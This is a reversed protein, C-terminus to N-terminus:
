DNTKSLPRHLPFSMFVIFCKVKIETCDAVARVNELVKFRFARPLPKPLDDRKVFMRSKFEVDSSFLSNYTIIMQVSMFDQEYLNFNNVQIKQEYFHDM